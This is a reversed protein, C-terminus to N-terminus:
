NIRLSIKSKKECAEWTENPVEKIGDVEGEDNKESLTKKVTKKFSNEDENTSSAAPTAQSDNMNKSSSRLGIKTTSKMKISHKSNVMTVYIM